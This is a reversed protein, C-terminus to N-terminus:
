CIREGGRMVEVAVAVAHVRHVVHAHSASHGGHTAGHRSGSAVAADGSIGSGGSRKESVHALRDLLLVGAHPHLRIHGLGLLLAALGEARHVLDDRMQRDFVHSSGLLSIVGAEPLVAGSLSSWEFGFVLEDIVDPYVRSFLGKGARKGSAAFDEGSALIELDVFSRM